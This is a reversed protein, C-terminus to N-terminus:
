AAARIVRTGGALLDHQGQRIPSSRITMVIKTWAVLALLPGAFPIAGLVTFAERILAQRLSPGLGVDIVAVILVDIARAALRVPLEASMPDVSAVAPM